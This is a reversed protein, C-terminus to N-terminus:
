PHLWPTVLLYRHGLAEVGVLELPPHPRSLPLGLLVESALDVLDVLLQLGVGSFNVLVVLSDDGVVVPVHVSRIPMVLLDDVSEVLLERHSRSGAGHRVGDLLPPENIPNLFGGEVLILALVVDEQAVRSEVPRLGCFRETVSQDLETHRHPMVFEGDLGALAHSELHVVTQPTRTGPNRQQRRGVQGPPEPGFPLQAREQVLRCENGDQVVDRERIDALVAADQRVQRAEGGVVVAHDHDGLLDRIGNERGFCRLSLERRDDDCFSLSNATAFPSM